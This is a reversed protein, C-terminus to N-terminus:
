EVVEAKDQKGRALRMEHTQRAYALTREHELKRRAEERALMRAVVEEVTGDEIGYDIRARAQERLRWM